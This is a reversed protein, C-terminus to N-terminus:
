DAEYAGLDCLRNKGDPRAEGRQDTILHCTGDMAADIAPSGPLLAHTLTVGGNDALPALRPDGSLEADCGGGEVLNSINTGIRM